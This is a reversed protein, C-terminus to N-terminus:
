HKPRRGDPFRNTVAPGGVADDISPDRRDATRIIVIYRWSKWDYGRVPRLNTAPPALTRQDHSRRTDTGRGDPSLAVLASARLPQCNCATSRVIITGLLSVGVEGCIATPDDHVVPDWIRGVGSGRPRPVSKPAECRSEGQDGGDGNGNPSKTTM